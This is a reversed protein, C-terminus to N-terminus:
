VMLAEYESGLELKKGLESLLLRVTFGAGSVMVGPLWLKTYPAVGGARVTKTQLPKTLPSVIFLRVVRGLM